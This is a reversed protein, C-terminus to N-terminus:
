PLIPEQVSFSQHLTYDLMYECRTMESYTFVHVCSVSTKWYESGEENRCLEDVSISGSALPVNYKMNRILRCNATAQFIVAAPTDRQYGIFAEEM